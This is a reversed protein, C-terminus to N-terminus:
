NSKHFEDIKDHHNKKEVNSVRISHMSMMKHVEIKANGGVDCLFNLLQNCYHFCTHLYILIYNWLSSMLGLLIICILLRGDM